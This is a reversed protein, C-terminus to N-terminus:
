GLRAAAAIRQTVHAPRALKRACELRWRPSAGLWNAGILVGKGHAWTKCRALVEIRRELGLVPTGVYEPGIQYDFVHVLAPLPEPQSTAGM